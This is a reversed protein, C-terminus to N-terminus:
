VEIIHECYCDYGYEKEEIVSQCQIRSVPIGDLKFSVVPMVKWNGISECEPCELHSLNLESM